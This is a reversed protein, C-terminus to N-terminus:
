PSLVTRRSLCRFVRQQPSAHNRRALRSPHRTPHGSVASRIKKTARTCPHPRDGAPHMAPPPRFRSSYPWCHGLHAAAAHTMACIRPRRGLAPISATRRRQELHSKWSDIVRCGNRRRCVIEAGPASRPHFIPALPPLVVLGQRSTRHPRLNATVSPPSPPRSTSSVFSPKRTHEIRSGVTAGPPSVLNLSSSSYDIASWFYLKVPNDSSSAFSNWLMKIGLM